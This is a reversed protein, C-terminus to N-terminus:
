QQEVRRRVRDRHEVARDIEAIEEVVEQIRRITYLRVRCLVHIHIATFFIDLVTDLFGILFEAILETLKARAVYIFIYVAILLSSLLIDTFGM